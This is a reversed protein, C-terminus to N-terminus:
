SAIHASTAGSDRSGGGAGRLRGTRVVPALGGMEIRGPVGAGAQIKFLSGQNTSAEGEGGSDTHRTKGGTVLGRLAHVNCM